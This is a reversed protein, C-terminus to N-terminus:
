EVRTVAENRGRIVPIIRELIRKKVEIPTGQPNIEHRLKSPYYDLVPATTQAYVTFRHRIVEESRDDDRGDTLARQLLRQVLPEADRTSLHVVALVDILPELMLCQARSRPIGDLVLVDSDPSVRGDTLATDLWSRWIRVALDDPVLNGHDILDRVTRGDDTSRDLSRFIEGTSIHFLGAMTGLLRGQTGKGAGPMGFLLIAPFRASDSASDPKASNLVNIRSDSSAEDNVTDRDNSM